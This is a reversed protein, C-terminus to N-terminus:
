GKEHIVGPQITVRGYSRAIKVATQGAHEPNYAGSVLDKDILIYWYPRVRLM